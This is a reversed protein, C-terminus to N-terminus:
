FSTDGMETTRMVDLPTINMPLKVLVQGTFAFQGQPSSLVVGPVCKSPPPIAGCMRSRPVLHPSHDAESEPRKVEPSLVVPVWQIPPQTPRLAPRSATYFFFIGLGQRSYFGRVGITWGM